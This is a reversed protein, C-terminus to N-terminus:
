GEFFRKPDVGLLRALEIGTSLSPQSGATWGCITSPRVGLRRAAEAQSINRERLLGILNRSFILGARSSKM